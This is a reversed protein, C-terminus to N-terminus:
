PNIPDEDDIYDNGSATLIDERIEIVELEPELYERKEMM